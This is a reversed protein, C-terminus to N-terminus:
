VERNTPLTLHTYSVSVTKILYNNLETSEALFNHPANYAEITGYESIKEITLTYTRGTTLGSMSVYVDTGNGCDSGLQNVINISQFRLSLM